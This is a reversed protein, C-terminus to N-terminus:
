HAQLNGIGTFQDVIGSILLDSIELNFVLMNTM